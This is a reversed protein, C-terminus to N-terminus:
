NGQTWRDRQIAKATARWLTLRGGSPVIAIRGFRISAAETLEGGQDVFKASHDESKQAVFIAVKRAIERYTAAVAGDPNAVVTPRGSDSQARISGDLPLGGLFPVNYDRCM